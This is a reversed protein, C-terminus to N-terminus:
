SNKTENKFLKEKEPKNWNEIAEEFLKKVREAEELTKFYSVVNDQDHAPGQLKGNDYCDLTYGEECKVIVIYPDEM